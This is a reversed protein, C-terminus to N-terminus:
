MARSPRPTGQQATPHHQSGEWLVGTLIVLPSTVIEGLLRDATLSLM